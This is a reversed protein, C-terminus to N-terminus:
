RGDWRKVCGMLDGLKEAIGDSGIQAATRLESFAREFTERVREEDFREGLVLTTHVTQRYVLPEEYWNPAAEPNVPAEPFDVKRSITTKMEKREERDPFKM